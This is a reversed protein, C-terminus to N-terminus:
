SGVRGDDGKNDEMREEGHGGTVRVNWTMGKEGGSGMTWSRGSRCTGQVYKYSKFAFDQMRICEQTSPYFNSLRSLSTM